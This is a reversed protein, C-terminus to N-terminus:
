IEEKEWVPTRNQRPPSTPVFFIKLATRSTIQFLPILKENISDL